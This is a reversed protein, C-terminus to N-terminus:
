IARCKLHDFDQQLQADLEEKHFSARINNVAKGAAQQISQAATHAANAIDQVHSNNSTEELKSGKKVLLYKSTIAQKIRESQLEPGLFPLKDFKKVIKAKM